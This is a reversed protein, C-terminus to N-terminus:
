LSVLVQAIHDGDQTHLLQALLVLKRHRPRALYLAEERLRHEHRFRERAPRSRVHGDLLRHPPERLDQLPIM